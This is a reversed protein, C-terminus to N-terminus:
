HTRADGILLGGWAEAPAIWWTEECGLCHLQIHQAQREIVLTEHVGDRGCAPCPFGVAQRM